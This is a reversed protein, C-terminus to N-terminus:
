KTEVKKEKYMELAEILEHKFPKRWRHEEKGNETKTIVIAIGKKFVATV